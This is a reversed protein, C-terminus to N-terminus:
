IQKEGEQINKYRRTWLFDTFPKGNVEVYPKDMFNLAPGAQPPSLRIERGTSVLIRDKDANGFYYDARAPHKWAESIDVPLWGKGAVHFESWCHYGQPIEGAPDSPLPPYGMQFRAPIGEALALAMFLSHFDTCNGKGVRCAYVSDGRGWGEGTKDYDMRSLVYRYLSRAKEVPDTLGRVTQRAIGRIEENVVVLGRPERFVAPADPVGDPGRQEKRSVRYQLRVEILGDAAAPGELYLFRNGFDADMTERYPWPAEVSLLHVSQLVNNPLRPIWLRVTSRSTPRELRFTETIELTRVEPFSRARSRTWAFILTAAAAVALGPALISRLPPRNRQFSHSPAAPADTM